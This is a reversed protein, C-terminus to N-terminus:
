MLQVKGMFGALAIVILVLQSEQLERKKMRQKEHVRRFLMQQIEPIM